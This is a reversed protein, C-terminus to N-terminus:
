LAVKISPSMPSKLFAKKIKKPDIAKVLANINAVLEETPQSLKGIVTHILPFDKETKYRLANGSFKEAAKKPDPIITGNKPNPLLGKPGLIKALPMIHEMDAVTALLVDFNIKGAKIEELLEDNFIAVKLAKGEFHPLKAEGSLGKEIVNLHLEVTGSNKATSIKKLLEIADKPPYSKAKDIQKKSALYNKGRVKPQKEKKEEVKINEGLQKELAAEDIIVEGASMDAFKEGKGTSKAKKEPKEEKVYKSKDKPM